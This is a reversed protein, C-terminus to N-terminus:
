VSACIQVAFVSCETNKETCSYTFNALDDIEDIKLEERNCPSSHLTVRVSQEQWKLAMETAEPTGICPGCQGRMVASSLFALASDGGLLTEGPRSRWGRVAGLGPSCCFSFGLKSELILTWKSPTNERSVATSKFSDTEVTMDAPFIIGAGPWLLNKSSSPYQARLYHLQGLISCGYTRNIHKSAKKWNGYLVFLVWFVNSSEPGWRNVETQSFSAKGWIRGLKRINYIKLFQETVM